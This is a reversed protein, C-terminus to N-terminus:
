KSSNQGAASQDYTSSAGARRKRQNQPYNLDSGNGINAAAGGVVNYSYPAPEWNTGDGIHASSSGTNHQPAVSNNGDGVHPATQALAMATGFTLGVVMAGGIGLVAKM